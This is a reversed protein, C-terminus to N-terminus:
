NTVKKILSKKRGRKSLLFGSLSRNKAKLSDFRAALNM